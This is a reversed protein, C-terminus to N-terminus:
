YANVEAWSMDWVLDATGAAGFATTPGRVIIGENQALIVPCNGDGAGIDLEADYRVNNPTTITQQTSMDIIPDADLTRTGATLGAAVNSVRIDGVLTTGMNTRKKFSNGTLTLAVGSSDNATYSRAVFVQFRPFITATAAATQLCSLRIKKIICFRTADSWRFAGLSVNSTQNVQIAIIRAFRYHGLSGYEDPKPNTVLARFTTGGVEAVVGGNGIIQIGM